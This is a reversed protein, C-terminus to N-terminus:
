FTYRLTAPIALGPIFGDLVIGQFQVQLGLSFGDLLTYFEIGVSAGFSWGTALNGADTDGCTARFAELEQDTPEPPLNREAPLPLESDANDGCFDVNPNSDVFVAGGSLKSSVALRESVMFGLTANLGVEYLAYDNAFTSAGQAGVVAFDEETLRSSGGNFAAAFKPGISLSFSETSAVDYAFILGVYPNANSVSRTPFQGNVDNANRGNFTFFVGVEGESSFGRRPEFPEETTAYGSASLNKREPVDNPEEPVDDPTRDRDARSEVVSRQRGDNQAHAAPSLLVTCLSAALGIASRMRACAVVFELAFSM